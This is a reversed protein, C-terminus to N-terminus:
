KQARALCLVYVKKAGAEKLVRACENLTAGSTLVDDVLLITKENIEAKKKEPVVFVGSVNLRREKSSKHGQSVTYKQRVLCSNSMLVEVQKSIERALLSAQNYRRQLLRWRHLPVPVILDTDSWLDGGCSVMWRGLAKASHIQDAYKFSLIIRKSYDDYKLAARAADFYPPKEQCSLCIEGEGTDFEFIHACQSCFPKTIFHLNKWVDPSITGNKEVFEGSVFCRPPLLIDIFREFLYRFFVLVRKM